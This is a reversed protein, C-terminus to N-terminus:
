QVAIKRVQQASLGFHVLIQSHQTSPTDPTRQFASILPKPSTRQVCALIGRIVVNGSLSTRYASHLIAVTASARTRRPQERRSRLTGGAGAFAWFGALRGLVFVLTPQELRQGTLLRRRSAAGRRLAAAAPPTCCAEATEGSTAPGRIGPGALGETRPVAAGDDPGASIGLGDSVGVAPGGGRNRRLKGRRRGARHADLVALVLRFFSLSFFPKSHDSRAGSVM